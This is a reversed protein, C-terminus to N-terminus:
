KEYQKAENFLIRHYNLTERKPYYDPNLLEKFYLYEDRRVKVIVNEESYLEVYFDTKEGGNLSLLWVFILLLRRM